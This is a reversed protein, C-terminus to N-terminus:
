KRSKFDLIQKGSELAAKKSKREEISMLFLQENKAEALIEKLEGYLKMTDAYAINYADESDYADKTGVYRIYIEKIIKLLKNVTLLKEDAAWLGLHNAVPDEAPEGTADNYEIPPSFYPVEKIDGEKTEFYVRKLGIRNNYREVGDNCEAVLYNLEQGDAKVKKIFDEYVTQRTEPALSKKEFSKVVEMYCLFLAVEEASDEKEKGLIMYEVASYAAMEGDAVEVIHYYDEQRKITRKLWYLPITEEEGFETLMFNHMKEVAPDDPNEISRIFFKEGEPSQIIEKGDSMTERKYRSRGAMIDIQKELPSKGKLNDSLNKTELSQKEFNM